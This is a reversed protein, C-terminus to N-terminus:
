AADAKAKHRRRISLLIYLVFLLFGAIQAFPALELGLHQASTLYIVHGDVSYPLSDASPASPSRLEYTLEQRWILSAAVLLVGSFFLAEIIRSASFIRAILTVIRGRALHRISQPSL